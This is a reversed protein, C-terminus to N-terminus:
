PRPLLPADFGHLALIKQGEPSLIFLAFDSAPEQNADKLITLGYNAEVALASPLAVTTIGPLEATAAAGNTCYSLFVDAREEHFLWVIANGVNPPVALSGPVNGIKLTKAELKARSGPHVADAKQFMARAYDGGPDNKPTSTAIRVQPELLKALITESTAKMGPRLVACLHNRAFMVTPGSKGSRTLMQANNMDASAFVDGPEGAALRAEIAGTAGYVAEVRTGYSDNFAKAIDTMAARLSGASHLRVVPIDAAIASSGFLAVWLAIHKGIM